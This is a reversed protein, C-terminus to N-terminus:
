RRARRRRRPCADHAAARPRARRVGGAPRREGHAGPPLLRQPLLARHRRDPRRPRQRGQPPRRGPHRARGLVPAAGRQPRVGALLLRDRRAGRAADRVLEPRGPARGPPGRRAGPARPLRRRRRTGRSSRAAGRRADRRPQRLGRDPGRPRGRRARRRDARGLDLRPQAGAPRAARPRRAAAARDHFPRIAPDHRTEGPTPRPDDHSDSPACAACEARCAGGPVALTWTMAPSPNGPRSLLTAHALGRAELHEHARPVRVEQVQRPALRQVFPLAIAQDLHRAADVAVDHAEDAVALPQVRELRQRRADRPELVPQQALQVIRDHGHDVGDAHDRLVHPVVAVLGLGHQDRPVEVERQGVAAQEAARAHRIQAVAQQVREGLQEDADVERPEEPAVARERVREEPAIRARERGIEDIGLRALQM